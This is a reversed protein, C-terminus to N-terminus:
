KRVSFINYEAARLLLTYISFFHMIMQYLKIHEMLNVFDRWLKWYDAILEPPMYM